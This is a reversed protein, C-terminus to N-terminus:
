IWALALLLSNKSGSLAYFLARLFVGSMLVIHMELIQLISSIGFLAREFIAESPLARVCSRTQFVTSSDEYETERELLM